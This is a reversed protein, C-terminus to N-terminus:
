MLGRIIEIRKENMKELSQYELWNINMDGKPTDSENIDMASKLALGFSEPVDYHFSWPLHWDQWDPVIPVAGAYVAHQAAINSKCRNFDNDELPVIMVRPKLQALGDEFGSREIPRVWKINDRPTFMDPKMGVFYFKWDPNDKIAKEIPDRFARLDGRHTESGRWVVHKPGNPDFSRPKNFVNFDHGNPVVVKVPASSPLRDMLLQTTTTLIDAQELMSYMANQIGQSSYVDYTRNHWPVDTLLDDYDLWVKVGMRKMVTVAHAVDPHFPRHLFAVDFFGIQDWEASLPLASNSTVFTINLEPMKKRILHWPRACREWSASMDPTYVLVNM